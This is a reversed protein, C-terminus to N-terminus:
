CFKNRNIVIHDIKVSEPRELIFTIIKAIEKPDMFDSIDKPDGSKAFLQTQMGGPFFGVIRINKKEVDIEKKLGDTFGAVGYKSAMYVAEYAHGGTPLGSSSSVNIVTGRNKAKMLSLAERTIYITGLLNTEVLNKIEGLDQKELPHYAIIGACNILFDISKIHKFINEVEAFNRIDCVLPTILSSNLEKIVADVKTKDKGLLFVRCDKQILEKVVELGLGSNGGTVLATKNKLDM